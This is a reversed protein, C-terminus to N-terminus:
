AVNDGRSRLILARRRGGRRADQDRTAVLRQLGVVVSRLLTTGNARGRRCPRRQTNGSGDTAASRDDRAAAAFNPCRCRADRQEDPDSASCPASSAINQCSGCGIALMPMSTIVTSIVSPAVVAAPSAGVGPSCSACAADRRGLLAGLLLGHGLLRADGGHHRLLNRDRRLLRRRLQLRLLRRRLSLGDLRLRLLLRLPRSRRVVGTSSFGGSGTVCASCGRRLHLGHLLRRLALADGRRGVLLRRLLLLAGGGRRGVGGAADAAAAGVIGGVVVAHNGRMQRAVLLIRGRRAAGAGLADRRYRERDVAAPAHGRRPERAAGAIAAMSWSTTAIARRAEGNGAGGSPRPRM